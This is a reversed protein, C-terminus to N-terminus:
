RCPSQDPTGTIRYETYRSRCSHTEAASNSMLPLM